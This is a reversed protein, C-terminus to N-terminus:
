LERLQLNIVQIRNDPLTRSRNIREAAHWNGISLLLLPGCEQEQEMGLETRASRRIEGKTRGHTAVNKDDPVRYVKYYLGEKLPNCVVVDRLALDM